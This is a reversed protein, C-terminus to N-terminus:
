RGDSEAQESKVSEQSFGRLTARLVDEAVQMPDGWPLGPKSTILSAVGHASSWLRLTMAAVDGRPLLGSDMAAAVTEGFHQFASSMLVLDTRTPQDATRVFASQYMVPNALAFRVYALGQAIGREVIDDHHVSVDMMVEDFQEFFHACVADLLEDKDTFHLYISPPTVGVRTAVARISVGDPGGHELLLDTAAALIEDALQEGSGRPSRKRKAGQASRACM